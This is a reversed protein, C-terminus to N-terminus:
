SLASECASLLANLARKLQAETTADTIVGEVNLKTKVQPVVLSADEVIRTGLASLVWVLGQHARSGGPGFPGMGMPSAALIGVPKREMVGLPVCWDLANKLVGPMGFAYEPTSFLIGQAQSIRERLDLVSAPGHPALPDLEVEPDFPPLAALGEYMEFSVNSPAM